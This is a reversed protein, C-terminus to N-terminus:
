TSNFATHDLGIQDSVNSADFIEEVYKAGGGTSTGYYTTQLIHGDVSM